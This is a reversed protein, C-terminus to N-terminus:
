RHHEHFCHALRDGLRGLARLLRKAAADRSCGMEAAVEELPLGELQVMRVVTRDQERLSALVAQVQRCQEDRAVISSPTRTQGPIHSPRVDRGTTADNSIGLTQPARNHRRWADCVMRYALTSIWRVFPAEGRYEFGDHHQLAEVIVEHTLDEVDMSRYLKASMHSAVVLVIRDFHRVLCESLPVIGQGSGACPSSCEDLLQGAM